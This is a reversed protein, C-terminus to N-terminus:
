ENEEPKEKTIEHRGSPKRNQLFQDFYLQIISCLGYQVFLYSSFMKCNLIFITLIVMSNNVEM